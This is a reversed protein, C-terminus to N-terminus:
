VGLCVMLPFEEAEVAAEVLDLVQREQRGSDDFDPDPDRSHLGPRYTHVAKVRKPDESIAPM